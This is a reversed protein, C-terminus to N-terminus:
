LWSLDRWDMSMRNQAVAEAVSGIGLRVWGDDGDTAVVTLARLFANQYRRVGDRDEFESQDDDVLPRLVMDAIPSNELLERGAANDPLAFRLQLGGDPAEALQATGRRQSGLPRKFDGLVVLVEDPSNISDTFAGPEYEVRECDGSVCRCPLPQGVPIRGEVLEGIRMQVKASPFTPSDVVAAAFLYGRHVVSLGNRDQRDIDFYSASLGKLSGRALMREAVAAMPGDLHAVLRIDHESATLAAETSVIADDVHMMNLPVSAPVPDFASPEIRERVVRGNGAPDVLGVQGFPVLIGELRRQRANYRVKDSYRHQLTM